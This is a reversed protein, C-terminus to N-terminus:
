SDSQDNKDRMIKAPHKSAPEDDRAWRALNVMFCLGLLVAIIILMKDLLDDDILGQSHAALSSVAILISVLVLLFLLKIEKM